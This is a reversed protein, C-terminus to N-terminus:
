HGVDASVRSIQSIFNCMNTVRFLGTVECNFVVCVFRTVPDCKKIGRLHPHATCPRIVTPIYVSLKLM